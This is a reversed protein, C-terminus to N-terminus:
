DHKAKQKQNYILFEIYSNLTTLGGRLAAEPINYSELNALANHVLQHAIFKASMINRGELAKNVIKQLWDSDGRGNDIVLSNLKRLNSLMKDRTSAPYSIDDLHKKFENELPVNKYRVNIPPIEVIKFRDDSVELMDTLYAKYWKFANIIDKLLSKCHEDINEDLEHLEDIYDDVLEIAFDNHLLQLEHSQSEKAESIQDSIISFYEPDGPAWLELDAIQILEVQKAADKISLKHSKILWTAFCESDYPIDLKQQEIVEKRLAKTTFNAM